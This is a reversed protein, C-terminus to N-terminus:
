NDYLVKEVLRLVESDLIDSLDHNPTFASFEDFIYTQMTEFEIGAFWEGRVRYNAFKIFVMKEFKRAFKTPIIFKKIIDFNGALELSKLRKQPSTSVGVKIDGHHNEILYLHNGNM